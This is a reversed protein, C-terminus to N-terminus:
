RCFYVDKSKTKIVELGLPSLISEFIDCVIIETGYHGADIVSIGDAVADLINHYKTDGTVMVDANKEIASPICDSCAGSGLAVTKIIKDKDGCIRVFDLKLVSKVKDAFQTLTCEEKLQGVRGLGNEELPLVDNLEFLINNFLLLFIYKAM